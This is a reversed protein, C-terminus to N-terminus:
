KWVDELLNFIVPLIKNGSDIIKAAEPLHKLVMNFTEKARNLLRSKEPEPTNGAEALVKTQELLTTKEGPSLKESARDINEQLRGLNEKLQPNDIIRDIAEKVLNGIINIDTNENGIVSQVANFNGGTNIYQSKDTNNSDQKVDTVGNGNHTTQQINMPKSLAAMVLKPWFNNLIDINNDLLNHNDKSWSNKVDHRRAYLITVTCTTASTVASISFIFLSLGLGSFDGKELKNFFNKFALRALEVGSKIKIDQSLGTGPQANSESFYENYLDPLQTRIFKVDGMDGRTKLINEWGAIYSIYNDDAANKRREVRRCVPLRGKYNDSNYQEENKIEGWAKIYESNYDSDTASTAKSRAKLAKIKALYGSCEDRDEKYKDSSLERTKSEEASKRIRETKESIIESAKLNNLGSQNLTLEVSVGSSLSQIISLGIFGLSAFISWLRNNSHYSSSGAACEKTFKLIFLNFLLATIIRLPASIDSFLFLLLPFNTLFDLTNSSNVINATIEADHIFKSDRYGQGHFRSPNAWFFDKISKASKVPSLLINNEKGKTTETADTSTKENTENTADSPRAVRDPKVAGNQPNQSM